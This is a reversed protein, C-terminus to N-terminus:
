RITESAYLQKYSMIETLKENWDAKRGFIDFPTYM